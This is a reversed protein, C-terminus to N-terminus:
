KKRDIERRNLQFLQSNEEGIKKIDFIIKKKTYEFGMKDFLYKTNVYYYNGAKNIKFTEDDSELMVMMYLINYKKEEENAGLKIYKKENIDLIKVAESSFGLKGNFHITAKVVGPVDGSKFFTIKMKNGNQEFKSFYTLLTM